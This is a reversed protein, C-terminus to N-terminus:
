NEHELIQNLKNIIYNTNSSDIKNTNILESRIWNVLTSKEIKEQYKDKIKRYIEIIIDDNFVKTEDYDEKLAKKYLNYFHPIILNYIIQDSNFDKLKVHESILIVHDSYAEKGDEQLEFYFYSMELNRFTDFDLISNLYNEKFKEDNLINNLLDGKGNWYFLIPVLSKNILVNTNQDYINIAVLSDNLM